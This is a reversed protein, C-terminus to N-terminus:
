ILCSRRRPPRPRLTCGRARSGRQRPISRASHILLKIIGLPFLPEMEHQIRMCSSSPEKPNYLLSYYISSFVSCKYLRLSPLSVSWHLVTFVTTCKIQQLLRWTLVHDFQGFITESMSTNNRGKNAEKKQSLLHLSVSVYPSEAPNFM